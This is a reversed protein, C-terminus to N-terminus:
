CVLKIFKFSVNVSSKLSAKSKLDTYTYKLFETKTRSYFNNIRCHNKIMMKMRMTRDNDNDNGNNASVPTNEFM